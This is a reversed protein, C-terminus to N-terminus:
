GDVGILALANYAGNNLSYQKGNVQQYFSIGLALFIPLGGADALVPNLNIAETQANLALTEGQQMDFSFNDEESAFDVAAMAVSIQFHTAGSPKAIASAPNFAPLSVQATGTERDISSQPAIFLTSGLPAANNFAFGKLVVLNESLVQREGRDSVEDAKIVRLMAGTLRNAMASDNTLQIFSRLATRLKKAARGARGFEANNERTRQFKPDTAIRDASVGGTERAQYGTKTKYFTLDGIKGDLKILSKQEAM